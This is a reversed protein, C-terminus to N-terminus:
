FFIIKNSYDKNNVIAKVIFLGSKNLNFTYSHFGVSINGENMLTAIEKGSLDYVKIIANMVNNSSFQVIINKENTTYLNYYDSNSLIASCDASIISSYTFHGDFDTQKLRYYTISNEYPVVILTYVENSNSNGAGAINAVDEFNIADQSRQITFYDNNTETATVWVLQMGKGTCEGNFSVLEIPLSSGIISATTTPQVLIYNWAEAGTISFGSTTVTKNSGVAPDSFTGTAGFTLLTVIDAGIVGVLVASGYNIVALTNGDFPKDNASVGTITLVVPPGNLVRNTLNSISFFTPNTINTPLFPSTQNYAFFATRYPSATFNFILNPTVSGFPVTNTLKVTAIRTGPATTSIITGNPHAAIGPNPIKICDSVYLIGTTPQQAAVLQSSGAVISATITGGNDVGPNVIIGIQYVDLEFINALDTNLVYIDFQFTTPSPQVDNMLSVQYSAPVQAKSVTIFLFGMIACFCLIKIILRNM